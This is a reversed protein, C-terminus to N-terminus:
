PAQHIILIGALLAQIHVLFYWGTSTSLPVQERITHNKLADELTTMLPKLPQLFVDTKRWGTSSSQRQDISRPNLCSLSTQFSTQEGPFKRPGRDLLELVLIQDRRGHPDWWPTKGAWLTCQFSHEVAEKCQSWGTVGLNQNGSCEHPMKMENMWHERTRNSVKYSKEPRHCYFWCLFTLCVINTFFICSKMEGFRADKYDNALLYFVDRITHGEWM